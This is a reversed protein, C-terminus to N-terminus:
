LTLPIFSKYNPFKLKFCVQGSMEEDISNATEEEEAEEEEIDVEGEEGDEGDEEEDLLEDDDDDNNQNRKFKEDSDTLVVNNEDILYTVNSCVSIDEASKIKRGLKHNDSIVDVNDRFHAHSKPRIKNSIKENSNSFLESESSDFNM